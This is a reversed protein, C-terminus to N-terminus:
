EVSSMDYNAAACAHQVQARLKPFRQLQRYATIADEQHSSRCAVIAILMNARAKQGGSADPNSLTRNAIARATALKSKDDSDLYRQAEDLQSKISPDGPKGNAEPEEQQPEDHTADSAFTAQGAAVGDKTAKSAPKGGDTKGATPKAANHPDHPAVAVPPPAVPTAVHPEVASGPAAPSPSAPPAVASAVQSGATPTASGGAVAASVARSGDERDHDRVLVVALVAALACAVLVVGIMVVPRRPRPTSAEVKSPAPTRAVVPAVVPAPEAGRGSDVTAAMAAIAPGHDGSGVTQAFAEKVSRKSSSSIGSDPPVVSPTKPRVQPLAQGTLAEVFAPVSEFRDAPAKAM